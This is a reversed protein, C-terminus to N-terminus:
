QDASVEDASCFFRFINSDDEDERFIFGNPCEEVITKTEYPDPADEIHSLRAVGRLGCVPCRLNKSWSEREAM